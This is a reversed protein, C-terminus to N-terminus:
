ACICFMQSPSYQCLVPRGGSASKAGDAISAIFAQRKRDTHPWNFDAFFNLSDYVFWSNPDSDYSLQKNSFNDNRTDVTRADSTTSSSRDHHTGNTRKETASSENEITSIMSQEPTDSQGDGIVSISGRNLNKTWTPKSKGDYICEVNKDACRSCRPRDGNCKTKSLRCSQCSRYTRIKRLSASSSRRSQATGDDAVCDLQLRECNRCGNERRGDCRVKPSLDTLLVNWPETQGRNLECREPEVREVVWSTNRGRFYASSTFEHCSLRSVDRSPGFARMKVLSPWVLSPSM